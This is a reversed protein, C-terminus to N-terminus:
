LFQSGCNTNWGYYTYKQGVSTTDVLIYMRKRPLPIRRNEIKVDVVQHKADLSHIIKRRRPIKGREM